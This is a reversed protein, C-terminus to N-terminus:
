QMKDLMGLYQDLRNEMHKLDDILEMLAHRLDLYAVRYAGNDARGLRPMADLAAELDLRAGDLGILIAMVSDADPLFPDVDGRRATFLKSARDLNEMLPSEVDTAALAMSAADHLADFQM